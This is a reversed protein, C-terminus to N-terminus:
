YRARFSVDSSCVAYGFQMNLGYVNNAATGTVIPSGMGITGGQKASVNSMELWSQTSGGTTQDGMPGHPDFKEINHWTFTFPKGLNVVRHPGACANIWLSSGDAYQASNHQLGFITAAATNVNFASGSNFGGNSSVNHPQFQIKVSHVFCEDFVNSLSTFESGSSVVSAVTLTAAGGMFLFYKSSASNSAILIGYHLKLRLRIDGPFIARLLPAYLERPADKREGKTELSPAPLKARIKTWRDSDTVKVPAPKRPTEKTKKKSEHSM